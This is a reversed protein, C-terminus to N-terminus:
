RKAGRPDVTDPLCSVFLKVAPDTLDHQSLIMRFIKTNDRAATECEAKTGYGEYPQWLSMEAARISVAGGSQQVAASAQGRGWLVWACEASASTAIALLGLTVLLIRGPMRARM